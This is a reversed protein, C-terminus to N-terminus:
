QLCEPWTATKRHLEVLWALFVGVAEQDELEYQAATAAARGIRVTIGAKLAAFADEDTADDGVCVPLADPSGSSALIWRAATGKNWDVRPRIELVDLGRTIHFCDGASAVTEGVIRRMEQRDADRVSRYHASATLGKNEFRVGPLHRLRIELDHSIRQLAQTRAAATPEVFSLGPGQIELGHNGGYILGDLGVRQRVDSLSRGSIIAVLFKANRSLAILQKGTEASLSVQGPDEVIPALTGDYDLFLFIRTAATIASAINSLHGFLPRATVSAPMM